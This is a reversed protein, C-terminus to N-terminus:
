KKKLSNYAIEKIKNSFDNKVNSHKINNKNVILKKLVIFADKENTVVFVNPRDAFKKATSLQHDNRHEGKAFVRPFIILPKDYDIATIITGMGAHGILVDAKILYDHYSQEDLGRVWDMNNPIYGSKGIQAFFEISPFEIAVNDINELMRDFPLQTGVTCFVRM